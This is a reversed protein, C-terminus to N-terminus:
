AHVEAHFPPFNYADEFTEAQKPQPRNDGQRTFERLRSVGM